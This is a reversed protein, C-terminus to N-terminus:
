RYKVCYWGDQDSLLDLRRKNPLGEKGRTYSLEFIKNPDGSNKEYLKIFSLVSEGRTAGALYYIGNWDEGTCEKGSKEFGRFSGKSFSDIKFFIWQSPNAPSPEPVGDIRFDKNSKRWTSLYNYLDELSTFIDVLPVKKIESM